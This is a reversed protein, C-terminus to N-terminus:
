RYRHPNLNDGVRRGLSYINARATLTQKVKVSATKEPSQTTWTEVVPVMRNIEYEDHAMGDAVKGDILNNTTQFMLEFSYPMDKFYILYRRMNFQDSGERAETTNRQTANGHKELVNEIEPMGPEAAYMYLERLTKEVVDDLKDEDFVVIRARLKDTILEPINIDSINSNRIIKTLIKLVANADSKPNQTYEVKVISEDDLQIERGLFEFDRVHQTNKDFEPNLDEGNHAVIYDVVRNDLNNHVSTVRVQKRRSPQAEATAFLRETFFNQIKSNLGLLKNENMELLLSLAISRIVLERASEKKLNEDNTFLSFIVLATPSITNKYEEYQVGTDDNTDIFTNLQDTVQRAIEVTQIMLTKAHELSINFREAINSYVIEDLESKALETRAIKLRLNFVKGAETGYMSRLVVRVSSISARNRINDATIPVNREM